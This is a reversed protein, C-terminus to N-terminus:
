GDGRKKGYSCFDDPRVLGLMKHNCLYNGKSTEDARHKCDKCRVVEVADITPMSAVETQATIVGVCWDEGDHQYDPEQSIEELKKDLEDADILRM